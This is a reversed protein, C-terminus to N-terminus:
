NGTIRRLESVVEEPKFPKNVLASAGAKLMQVHTAKQVDATAVVVKVSADVERLRKLVEIGQMGEMVLDLFVVDPKAELYKALAETGSAAEEVGYGQEELIRRLTRRAFGSDDVVLVTASMAPPGNISKRWYLKRM